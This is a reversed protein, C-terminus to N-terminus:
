KTIKLKLKASSPKASSTGGFSAKITYTGKKLKRTFVIAVNGAGDLKGTGVKSSGAYVTVAAGNVRASTAVHIKAVPRSNHTIVSPWLSMTTRSAAKVVTVTVTAPASDETGDNAVYTFSTTGVFNNPIASFVAKNGVVEASGHTPEDIIEYTLADDDEDTGTLPVNIAGGARTTGTASDVSPARNAGSFEYKTLGVTISDITVDGVIGSGLSWGATLIEAGAPLAERWEALTGNFNSGVGGRDALDDEGTPALARLDANAASTPVWWRTDTAIGQYLGSGDARSREGVLTGDWENDGDLDIRLQISPADTAAGNRHMDISPQGVEAFPEGVAFYGAAKNGTSGVTKVRVGGNDLFTNSGNAQTEDQAVDNSYLTTSSIGPSKSFKYTTDGYTISKINGDGEAGSGLSFGGALVEADGFTQSWEDLPAYYQRYAPQGPDILAAAETLTQGKGESLWWNPSFGEEGVLIGDVDGDGDFDVKMQLGPQVELDERNSEWVMSPAPVEGAFDSLPHDLDFYGAAKNTAWTGPKGDTRPGQVTAGTVVRVGNSLFKVSGDTRTASTDLDAVSLTVTDDASAPSTFLLGSAVLAGVATGAALRKPTISM